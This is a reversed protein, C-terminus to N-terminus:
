DTFGMMHIFCWKKPIDGWYAERFSWKQYTKASIYIIKCVKCVKIGAFTNGGIIIPHILKKCKDCNNLDEAFKKIM